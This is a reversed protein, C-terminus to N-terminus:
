ATVKRYSGERLEDVNLLSVVAPRDYLDVVAPTVGRAAVVDSQTNDRVLAVVQHDHERLKTLIYSM